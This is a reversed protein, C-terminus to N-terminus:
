IPELRTIPFKYNKTESNKALLHRGERTLERPDEPMSDSYVAAVVPNDPDVYGYRSNCDYVSRRMEQIMVEDCRDPIIKVVVVESQEEIDTAITGIRLM